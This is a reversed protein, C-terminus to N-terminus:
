QESNQLQYMKHYIGNLKVLSDHNGREVIKGKNLVLIQDADQITSLRHAIIISTRGSRMTALSDQIVSETTSDINATAEDLILIKPTKAMTRSFALLQRQGSSFDAGKESVKEDYAHPLAEIFEHANVFEAAWKVKNFTMNRDYLQINSKVTGYFIFPDQLVLGVREKMESKPLEKISAQDITIDGKTFEYFRMLLNIISSKGSGTHGVIATTTGADVKFSIDDLVQTVGDYSFSVHSFEVVGQDISLNENENQVPELRDDDMLTFVRSAAVLAQQFINLSQSVQNIPEFFREMYQIFAFIVGASVSAEFSLFGFYTLIVIISLIYIMDIAPRLLLGDLKINKMNYQYHSQNISEFEQRLRKEQNFVQIIKMGEISESLKANMDSLLARASSFYRASYKRYLLLIGVIMPMFVLAIFALKVDLIFMMVFSSVVMFLAMLFTGLVNTFMDVIAQTDNTLRSVVSGSPVKDFYKMGLKGIKEFTDIRLQQIVKFALKQLLYIQCYTTIVQVVNVLVFALILFMIDTEPFHAKILYNDIFIMVLYPTMVGMATSIVLMSFALTMLWKFPLTYKLLRILVSFQDKLTLNIMDTQTTM